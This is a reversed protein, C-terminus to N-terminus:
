VPTVVYTAVVAGDSAQTTLTLLVRWTDGTFTGLATDGDVNVGSAAYGAGELQAQATAFDDLSGVTLQAVWGTGEPGAGGGRVAGDLLPVEAPFSEPLTGDTSVSAGGLVDGVADEVTGRVSEVGQDVASGVINDVMSGEGCATLGAVVGGALLLASASRILRTRSSRSLPNVAVVTASAAPRSRPVHPGHVPAPVAGRSRPVPCVVFSAGRV